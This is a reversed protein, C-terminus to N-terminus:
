NNVAASSRYEEAIKEFLRYDDSLFDERRFRGLGQVARFRVLRSDDKLLPTLADQIEQRPANQLALVAAARVEPSKDSLAERLARIAQPSYDPQPDVYTGLAM